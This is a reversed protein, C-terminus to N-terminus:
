SILMDVANNIDAAEHDAGHGAEGQWVGTKVVISRWGAKRAGSIDSAPNDGIMVIEGERGSHLKDIYREVFSSTSRFPKGYMTMNAIPRGHIEQHLMSLVRAFAGGAIRPLSHESAYLLDYASVFLPTEPRHTLCDLVIQADRNWDPSAHFVFVSQINEVQHNKTKVPQNNWHISPLSDHICEPSVAAQFGYSKAVDLSKRSGIVLNQVNKFQHFDRFPTHCLIMEEGRIELGIANSLEVAKQAEKVGGGNTLFIFPVGERRLRTLAPAAAPIASKGRMVVGDIDLVVAKIRKM